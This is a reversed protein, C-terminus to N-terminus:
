TFRWCLIRTKKMARSLDIVRIEAKKSSLMKKFYPLHDEKSVFSTFWGCQTKIESSEAIMKGIFAKEGGKVWLEANQGGFNKSSGVKKGLNKWKRLTESQAEEASAYFPPNCMTLDFFEGPKVIGRFIFDKEQLRLEVKGQLPPNSAVLALGVKLAAPNIDSDVFDWSYECVGIIPYICNAGVGIDLVRAHKKEGLLDALHHVYDSRGPVPPCLFNEPVDWNIGYFHNLLAQNLLKVAVPSSFDISDDGRPTRLLMGKLEPRIKTLADFDYHKQHRNRPHM